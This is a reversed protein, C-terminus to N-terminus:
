QGYSGKSFLDANGWAPLIQNWSKLVTKGWINFKSYAIRNTKTQKTKLMSLSGLAKIKIYKHM